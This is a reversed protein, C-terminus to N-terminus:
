SKSFLLKFLKYILSWIPVAFLLGAIILFTQYKEGFTNVHYSFERATAYWNISDPSYTAIITLVKDGPTKPTLYLHDFIAATDSKLFINNPLNNMRETFINKPANVLGIFYKDYLNTSDGYRMKTSSDCFAVIKLLNPNLPGYGTLGFALELTELKDVTYKSPVIWIEWSSSQQCVGTLNLFLFLYILNTKM